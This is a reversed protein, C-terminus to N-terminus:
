SSLFGWRNLCTWHSVRWRHPKQGATSSFLRLTVSIGVDSHRGQRKEQLAADPSRGLSPVLCDREILRRICNTSYRVNGSAKKLIDRHLHRFWALAVLSFVFGRRRGRAGFDNNKRVTRFFRVNASPQLHAIIRQGVPLGPSWKLGCKTKPPKAPRGNRRTYRLARGCSERLKGCRM